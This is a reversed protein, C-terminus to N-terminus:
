VLAAHLTLALVSQRAQEDHTAPDVYLDTAQLKAASVLQRDHRTQEASLKEDVGHVARASVTHLGHAATQV